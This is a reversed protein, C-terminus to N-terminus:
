LTRSDKFSVFNLAKIKENIEILHRPTRPGFGLFPLTKVAILHKNKGAITKQIGPLRWLSEKLRRLGEEQILIVSPNADVLAERSIPKFGNVKAFVNLLGLKAFIPEVPTNKGAVFVQNPGRAYIFMARKTPQIMVKPLALLDKKVKSSITMSREPQRLRVSVQNIKKPISDLDRSEEIVYTPTGSAQLQRLLKPNLSDSGMLVIDPKLSLVGEVSIKTYYGLNKASDRLEPPYVSTTDVGVLQDMFGLGAVIETITGGVSVIRQFDTKPHAQGM